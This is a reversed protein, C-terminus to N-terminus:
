QDASTYQISSQRTLQYTAYKYISIFLTVEVRIYTIDSVDVNELINYYNKTIEKM